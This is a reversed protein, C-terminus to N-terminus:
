RCNWNAKSEDYLRLVDISRRGHSTELIVKADVGMEEGLRYWHKVIADTSDVITGICDHSQNKQSHFHDLEGDFDFLLGHASVVETPASFSPEGLSGM